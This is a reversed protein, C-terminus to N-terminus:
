GRVAMKMVGINLNARPNTVFEEILLDTINGYAVSSTSVPSRTTLSGVNLYRPLDPLDFAHDIWAEANFLTYIVDFRELSAGNIVDSFQRFKQRAHRHRGEFLFITRNTYDYIGVVKDIKDEKRTVFCINGIQFRKYQNTSM